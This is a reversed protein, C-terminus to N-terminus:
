SLRNKLLKVFDNGVQEVYTSNVLFTEHVDTMYKLFTDTLVSDYGNGKESYHMPHLLIQIMSKEIKKLFEYPNKGRFSYRSDSIYNEDSFLKSDYANVYNKFLPYQGHLSPNHLSVSKVQEDCAFSLIEIEKGFNQELNEPYLTPDFHLGIEHGMDRMEKLLTRNKKSLINYSHCSTLIFFTSVVKMEKEIVAVNHALQLDFDVDHRILFVRDGKWDKFLQTKGHKNIESFFNRLEEYKFIM